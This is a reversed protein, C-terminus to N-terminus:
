VPCFDILVLLTYDNFTASTPFIIKPISHNSSGKAASYKSNMSISLAAPVNPLFNILFRDSAVSQTLLYITIQEFVKIRIGQGKVPGLTNKFRDLNKSSAWFKSQM